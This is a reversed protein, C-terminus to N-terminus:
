LSRVAKSMHMFMEEIHIMTNISTCLKLDAEGEYVVLRAFLKSEDNTMTRKMKRRLSEHIEALLEKGGIREERMLFELRARLDKYRGDFALDILEEAKKRQFFANQAVDEIRQDNITPASSAAAELITIAACADGRSYEKLTKLGRDTINVGEEDAISRMLQEMAGSKDLSRFHLNLCRSRLAPIIGAPKTTSFVFRCTKNSREMIRRLAQQANVPLLDANSFFLLKFSANIPSLAAYERIMEKFIILASKQENYFFKFRKNEKLWKKGQEVFDATEIHMLNEDYFEGYLEKALAYVLSTKGTGKPGWLVLNPITREKVFGQLRKVVEDHGVIEELRKPRYEETWM